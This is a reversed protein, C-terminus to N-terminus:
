QAVRLVLSGTGSTRTANITWCGPTPFVWGTGWEDGPRNWNSGGHPEPGWVPKVAKGDPGTASISFDGSGTMRWVVKIETGTRLATSFLMAWLTAGDGTGQLDQSTYQATPPCVSGTPPASSQTAQRQGSTQPLPESAIERTSDCGTMAIASILGLWWIRNAFRPLPM